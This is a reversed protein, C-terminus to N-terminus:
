FRYRLGLFGVHATYAPALYSGLNFLRNGWQFSRSTDRLLTESGVAEVWPAVPSQQWDELDYNEFTYGAVLTAARLTYELRLNVVHWSEVVTPPTSFAFQHNPPFPTGDWNTVGFGGYPVDVEALSATYDAIIAVRDPKVQLATGFGASWTKNKTEATWQSGARTWPGLEATAIAGPNAKNNENFEMSKVFSTGRDHNVFANLTVRAVPQVFFDAGYRVRRDELLGLQNGPTTAAADPLTTDSLPQSAAVNSDFDDNRFRVFANLAVDERPSLNVRLDLQRRMRDSVDFRRMDPHNDFTLLPNNNDNAESPSYWYGEHTVENNYTGGDRDGQLYRAELSVWRNARTRWSGRLINEATDAERHVRGVAEREYGFNLTSRAPLRWTAEVGANDRDYAYPINVRKNVYSSTGNLNSTDSTVYQWRDSPTNNDLDYQRYFARLNLRPMPNVVYDATVSLTDLSGEATTRPFPRTTLQDANYSYPLLVENQELRGYGISGILRSDFPMDAGIMTSINHYRNDPPLPRVGYTSVSRDWTDYTEGPVVAAYVNQWQLTDVANAFDSFLYEARVQYGTGKHEAAFTLENTRYDVPEALEINLTRPPRDGIPGFTNKSGYKDRMNYSFALNLADSGTWSAGFRGVNTQTRLDVPHLFTRQYAAILEDSALVGATDAAATALKKFTIPVTAPVDFLGPARQIYPTVAKNSFNHPVENWDAAVHWVGAHGAEILITQDRRSVNSGSLTFFRAGGPEAVSFALYPLFFQDQLDRYETFKSSNTNNDIQQVGPTVTGTMRTAATAQAPAVPPPTQAYATSASLIALVSILPKM